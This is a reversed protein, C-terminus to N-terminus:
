FNTILNLLRIKSNVISGKKLMKYDFGQTIKSNDEAFLRAGLVGIDEGHFPVKSIPPKM